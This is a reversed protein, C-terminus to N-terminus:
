VGATLDFTHLSYITDFRMTMELSCLDATTKEDNGGQNEITMHDNRHVRDHM